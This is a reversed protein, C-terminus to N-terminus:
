LPRMGHGLSLKKSDDAASTAERGESGLKNLASEFNEVTDARVIQYEWKM